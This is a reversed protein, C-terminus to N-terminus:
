LYSLPDRVTESHDRKRLFLEFVEQSLDEADERRRVRRLLYRSLVEAYESFASATLTKTSGAPTHKPSTMAVSFQTYREWLSRFDSPYRYRRPRIYTKRHWARNIHRYPSM